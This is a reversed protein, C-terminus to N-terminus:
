QAQQAKCLGTIYGAYEYPHMVRLRADQLSLRRLIENTDDESDFDLVILEEKDNEWLMSRVLGEAFEAANHLGLVRHCCVPKQGKRIRFRFLAGTFMQVMGYAAFFSFVVILVGTM